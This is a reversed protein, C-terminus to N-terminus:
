GCLAAAWSACCGGREWRGARARLEHARATGSLPPGGMLREERVGAARARGVGAKAALEPGGTM